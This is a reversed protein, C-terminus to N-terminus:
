PAARIVQFGVRINVVELTGNNDRFEVDCRCRAGRKAIFAQCDMTGAGAGSFDQAPLAVDDVYPTVRISFANTYKITVIINRFIADGAEGAPLFDQTSFTPLVLTTSNSTIQTTTSDFKIIRGRDSEGVYLPM